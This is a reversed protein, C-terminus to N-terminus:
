RKSDLYIYSDPDDKINTQDTTIPNTIESGTKLINEMTPINYIDILKKALDEQNLIPKILGEGETQKKLQLKDFPLDLDTDPEFVAPPRSYQEKITKYLSDYTHYNM